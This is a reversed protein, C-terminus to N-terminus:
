PYWVACLILSFPWQELSGKFEHRVVDRLHGCRTRAERLEELSFIKSRKKETATEKSATIEDTRRSCLYFFYKMVASVYAILFWACAIRGLPSLGCQQQKAHMHQKLSGQKSPPLIRSMTPQIIYYGPPTTHDAALQLSIKNQFCCTPLNVM